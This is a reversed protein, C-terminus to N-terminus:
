VWHVYRYNPCGVRLNRCSSAEAGTFRIIAGFHSGFAEGVVSLRPDKRNTAGSALVLTSSYPNM